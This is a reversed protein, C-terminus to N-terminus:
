THTVEEETKDPPWWWGYVVSSAATWVGGIAGSVKGATEALVKQTREVVQTVQEKQHLNLLGYDSAQALLRRKLDSMSLEGECVHCPDIRSIQGEGAERKWALYGPSRLWLTMFEHNFDGQATTDGNISTALLSLTYHKFQAQVWGGSGVWSSNEREEHIEDTLLSCFRLDATTLRLASRLTQETVAVSGDEMNVFVDCLKHWQKEFLANVVGVLHCSPGGHEESVTDIQQLCFYPQVAGGELVKLPFGFEDEVCTDGHGIWAECCQPFLSAIGLVSFCLRRVPAGYVMVRKQLLIAKFVQLLRHQYYLVQERPAVGVYLLSSASESSLSDNLHRYAEHLISFDSFDKSNFYAHTVLKLKSEIFGFLPLHTLVCISKQITTRTVDADKCPLDKAEMQKCCAVGYIFRDSSVSPERSDSPRALAFFSSDEEYNHCGDPLALHPLNKWERPLLSTISHRDPSSSAGLPPYAFEVTSGKQHHFGVVFIHLILPESVSAM